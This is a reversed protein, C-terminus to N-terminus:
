QNTSRLAFQENKAVYTELESLIASRWDKLEDDKRADLLINLDLHMIGCNEFLRKRMVERETEFLPCCLLYHSVSEVAGCQCKYGTRLQAVAREGGASEFSHKVKYDVRPRFEFLDRGTEAKAWREQWKKLGSEKAAAKVDCLTVAAPLESESKEKAEEAAEKAMKDAQDNGKIDPHGPTWSIEVEMGSECLKQIDKKM